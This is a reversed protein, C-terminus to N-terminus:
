SDNPMLEYTFLKHQLQQCYFVLNNSLDAGLFAHMSISHYKQLLFALFSHQFTVLKLVHGGQM